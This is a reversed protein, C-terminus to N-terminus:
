SGVVYILCLVLLDLTLTVFCVCVCVCWGVLSLTLTQWVTHWVWQLGVVYTRAYTIALGRGSGGGRRGCAWVCWVGGRGCRIYEEVAVIIRELNDKNKSHLEAAVWPLASM